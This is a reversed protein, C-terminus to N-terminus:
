LWRAVKKKYQLYIDGFKKELFQEEAIIQFRTIYYVFGLGSDFWTSQSVM